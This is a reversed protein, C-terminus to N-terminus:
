ASAGHDGLYNVGSLGRAQLAGFKRPEQVCVTLESGDLHEFRVGCSQLFLGGGKRLPPTHDGALEWYLDDGVIPCELEAAAHIRLQHTRGTIPKM